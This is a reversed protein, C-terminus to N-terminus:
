LYRGRKHKKVRRSSPTSLTKLNIRDMDLAYFGGIRFPESDAVVQGEENTIIIYDVGPERALEIVLKQREFPGFHKVAGARAGAEYSRILAEGKETLLRKIFREQRDLSTKTMIVLLCIFVLCSGLVFWFFLPYFERFRSKKGKLAM